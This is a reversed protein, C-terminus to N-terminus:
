VQNVFYEGTNESDPNYVILLQNGVTGLQSAVVNIEAGSELMLANEPVIGVSEATYFKLQTDRSPINGGNGIAM